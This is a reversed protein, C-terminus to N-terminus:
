NRNLHACPKPSKSKHICVKGMGMYDANYGGGVLTRENKWMWWACYLQYPYVPRSLGPIWIRNQPDEGEGDKLKFFKKFEAWRADDMQQCLKNDAM